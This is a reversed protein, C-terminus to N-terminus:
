FQFISKLRLGHCNVGVWMARAANTDVETKYLISDNHPAAYDPCGPEKV